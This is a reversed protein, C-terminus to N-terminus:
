ILGLEQARAGAQFRSNAGLAAMLEADPVARGQPDRVQLLVRERVDMPRHAVQTRDRFALYEAFSANDDVM